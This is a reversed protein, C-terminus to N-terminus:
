YLLLKFNCRINFLFGTPLYRSISDHTACAKIARFLCTHVSFMIAGVEILILSPCTIFVYFMARTISNKFKRFNCIRACASNDTAEAAHWLKTLLSYVTFLIIELNIFLVIETWICSYQIGNVIFVWPQGAAINWGHPVNLVFWRATPPM